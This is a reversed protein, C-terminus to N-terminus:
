GMNMIIDDLAMEILELRQEIESPQPEPTPALLESWKGDIYKSGVGYGDQLEVADCGITKAEKQANKQNNSEMTSVCIDNKILGYIM